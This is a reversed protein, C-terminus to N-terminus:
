ATFKRLFFERRTQQINSFGDMRPDPRTGQSAGGGLIPLKKKQTRPFQGFAALKTSFYLLSIMPIKQSTTVSCPIGEGGGM